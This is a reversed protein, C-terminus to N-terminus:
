VTEPPRRVMYWWMCYHAADQKGPMTICGMGGVGCIKDTKMMRIRTDIGLAEM